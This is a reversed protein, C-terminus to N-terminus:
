VGRRVSGVRVLHWPFMQMCKKRKMALFCFSSRSVNQRRGWRKTHQGGQALLLLLSPRITSEQDTLLLGHLYCMCFFQKLGEFICGVNKCFIVQYVYFASKQLADRYSLTKCNHMFLNYIVVAISM